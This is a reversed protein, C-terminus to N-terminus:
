KSNIYRSYIRSISKKFIVRSINIFNIYKVWKKIYFSFLPNEQIINFASLQSIHEQHYYPSAVQSINTKEFLYYNTWYGVDYRHLNDLLSQISSNYIWNIENDDNLLLFDFLGWITYILGNLVRSPKLTPYEEFYINGNSDFRHLGGNKVEVLLSGLALKASAFYKEENTDQYARLLLSIAQGQVLSSIWNEKLGYIPVEYPVDWVGQIKSKSKQNQVLWDACKLFNSRSFETNKTLWVDFWGLGVQCVTVPHLYYKKKSNDYVLPFGENSKKGIYPKTKITMDSYYGYLRGPIINKGKEKVGHWFDKPISVLFFKNM